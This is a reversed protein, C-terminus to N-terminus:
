DVRVLAADYREGNAALWRRTSEFGAFTRLAQVRERWLAAQRQTPLGPQMLAADIMAVRADLETAIVAATGSAVRPDRAYDLLAELRASEAQLRALSVTDTDDSPQTAGALPPPQTRDPTQRAPWSLWTAAIALLLTAAAALPLPWKSWRRRRQTADLRRTVAMWGDDPAAELPLAAFADHWDRPARDHRSTDPM